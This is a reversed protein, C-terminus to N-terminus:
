FISLVQSHFFQLAANATDSEIAGRDLKLRFKDNSHERSPSQPQGSAAAVMAIMPLPKKLEPLSM